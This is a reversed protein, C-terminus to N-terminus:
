ALYRGSHGVHNASQSVADRMPTDDCRAIASPSPRTKLTSILCSLGAVPAAAAGAGSIRGALSTHAASRLPAVCIHQTVRFPSTAATLWNAM